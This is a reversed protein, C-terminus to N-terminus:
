QLIAAAVRGVAVVGAVDAAHLHHERATLDQAGAHARHGVALRPVDILVAETGADLAQELLGVEADDGAHADPEHRSGLHVRRAPGLEFALLRDLRQEIRHAPQHELVDNATMRQDAAADAGARAIRLPHQVLAAPGPRDAEREVAALLDDVGVVADRLPREARDRAHGHPALGVAAVIAGPGEVMVLADLGPNRVHVQEVQEHHWVAIVGAM